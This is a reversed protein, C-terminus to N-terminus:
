SVDEILLTGWRDVHLRQGPYLLTTSWEDEVVAPGHMTAGCGLQFRQYVPLPVNGTEPFFAQREGVLAVAATGAPLEPLQVARQPVLAALRLNMCEVPEATSYAYLAEHQAQFGQQLATVEWDQPKGPLAITLEYKQGVYRLDCSYQLRIDGLPYGEEALPQCAEEELPRFAEALDAPSLDALRRRYTQVTDTRVDSVLCGLASFGSSLPPVILRPIHLLRALRGAHLPGAGGFAVLTFHRLDHGKQVSVLRLAHMMNANAIDIIGQATDYLSMGFPEGFGQVAAEALDRRLQIQRGYTAHPNLYGLVLNADTVTPATGGRNYCAPGPSAGASQPGVKIAGAMDVWALSGGGAGISEIAVSALRVPQEGIRREATVAARGQHLLCVDTSTGGMDFTVAETIQLRALLYQVAAVGAAPGSMVTSLPRRKVLATSMMGGNSQVIHLRGKWGAEHLQRQLQDVYRQVLPMVFANLVVTNTREYERFEANVESSISVHALHPALAEALQREHMPNAYAHLLCVAVAEVQYQQLTCLLDPVEHLALAQLVDGHHNLRESIELRLHRPVLAPPRGHNQLDYMHERSQRAIELVDRFGRTTILATRAGRGELVANTAVTTGHIITSLRAAPPLQQLGDVVGRALEGSTSPMKLATLVGSQHDLAVVDTFTGGVDIGITVAGQGATM